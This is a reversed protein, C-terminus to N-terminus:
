QGAVVRIVTSGKVGSGDNAMAVVTVTGVRSGTLLGTSSITAKGTGNIVKWTVSKNAADTPSLTAIMQLRGKLTVETANNSGSVIIETVLITINIKATGIVGSGDNASAIVTVTGASAATLLGSSTITASGTENVVSWTMTKNTAHNPTISASMQLSNNVAVSSSRNAGTVTIKTVPVIINITGTGIVGSEDTAAAIVSVTGTKTGTLLGDSSIIARGTGNKVLWTVTQNAANVPSIIAIMQLSGNLAVNM